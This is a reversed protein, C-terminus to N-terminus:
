AFSYPGWEWDRRVRANDNKHGGGYRKGQWVNVWVNTVLEGIITIFETNLQM